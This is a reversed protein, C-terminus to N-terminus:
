KQKKWKIYNRLPCLVLHNSYYNEPEYLFWLIENVGHQLNEYKTVNNFTMFYVNRKIKPIKQTIKIVDNVKLLMSNPLMLAIYNYPSSLWKNSFRLASESALRDLAVFTEAYMCRFFIAVIILEIISVKQRRRLM